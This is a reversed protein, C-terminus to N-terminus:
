LNRSNNKNLYKKSVLLDNSAGYQTSSTTSSAAIFWETQYAGFNINANFTINDNSTLSVSVTAQFKPKYVLLVEDASGETMEIEIQDYGEVGDDIGDNVKFAISTANGFNKEPETSQTCCLSFVLPLCVLGLLKLHKM